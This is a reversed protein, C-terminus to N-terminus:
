GVADLQVTNNKIWFIGLLTWIYFPCVTLMEFLCIFILTSRHHLFLSLLVNRFDPDRNVHALRGYM